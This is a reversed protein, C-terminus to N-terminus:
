MHLSEFAEAFAAYGKWLPSTTRRYQVRGPMPSLEVLLGQEVMQNLCEHVASREQGWRSFGPALDGLSFFAEEPRAVLWRAVAFRTPKGFIQKILRDEEM